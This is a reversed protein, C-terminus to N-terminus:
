IILINFVVAFFALIFIAVIIKMIKRQLGLQREGEGVAYNHLSAFRVLLGGLIIVALVLAGNVGYTVADIESM